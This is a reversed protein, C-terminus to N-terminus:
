HQAGTNRGSPKCREKNNCSYVSLMSCLYLFSSIFSPYLCSVSICHYICCFLCLLPVVSSACYLPVACSACSSASCLPCLLPPAIACRVVPACSYPFYLLFCPFYLPSVLLVACRHCLYLPLASASCLSTRLRLVPYGLM